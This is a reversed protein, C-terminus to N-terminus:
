ATVETLWDVLIASLEAPKQVPILHSVGPVIEIRADPLHQRYIGAVREINMPDLEGGVFLVPCNIEGLRSSWARDANARSAAAFREAPNAMVTAVTRDYEAQNASNALWDDTFWRPVTEEIVSAM